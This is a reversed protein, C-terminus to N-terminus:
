EVLLASYQLTQATQEAFVTHIRPSQSHSIPNGMVVYQDM